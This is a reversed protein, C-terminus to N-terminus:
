TEDSKGLRIKMAQESVGCIKALESPNNQGQALLDIIKERPMLLNAAFRNAQREHQVTISKNNFKNKTSRYARTDDVGAGILDRHYIYHGIEHAATFRQRTPPHNSNIVIRYSGNKLPEIWGSIDDSLFDFQLKIGLGKALAFVDVPLSQSHERITAFIDVTM